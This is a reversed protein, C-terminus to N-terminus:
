RVVKPVCLSECPTGDGDGDLTTTGCRSLYDRAEDCSDMQSCLKKACAQGSNLRLTSDSRNAQSQPVISLAGAPHPAASPLSSPHLKRWQSPEIIESPEGAWLGRRALQAERQLAVLEKNSHYRSYEWAMGRRIQEHNANLGDASVMAVMRGYTDIARSEVQVTKGMVMSELSQQSAIGYPQSDSLKGGMGTHSVEPADIEVLRVKVPKTGQMVLITDGDFVAIVKGSFEAGQLWGSASLLAICILSRLTNM